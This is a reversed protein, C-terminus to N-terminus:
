SRAEQRLFVFLIFFLFIIQQVKLQNKRNDDLDWWKKPEEHPDDPNQHGCDEPPHVDQPHYDGQFPL